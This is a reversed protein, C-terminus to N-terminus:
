DHPQDESHTAIVALIDDAREYAHLVDKLRLAVGGGFWPFEPDPQIDYWRKANEAATFANPDIHRAVAERTRDSM